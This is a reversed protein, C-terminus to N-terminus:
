IGILVAIMTIKEERRSETPVHAFKSALVEGDVMNTNADATSAGGMAVDLLLYIGVRERVMTACESAFLNEPTVLVVLLLGRVVKKEGHWRRPCHNETVGLSTDVIEIVEEVIQTHRRSGDMGVASLTLAFICQLDSFEAV